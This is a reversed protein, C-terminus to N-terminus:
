YLRKRPRGPRDTLRRVALKEETAQIARGRDAEPLGAPKEEEM